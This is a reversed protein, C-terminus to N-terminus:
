SIPEWEGVERREIRADIRGEEIKAEFMIAKAVGLAGSLDAEAFAAWSGDDRFPSGCGGIDEWRGSPALATVRYEYM